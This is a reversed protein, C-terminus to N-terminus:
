MVEFVFTEIDERGFECEARSNYICAYGFTAMFNKLGDRTYYWLHENPKFHKSTLCHEESRFIPMSVFVPRGKLQSMIHSQGPIHELSDWFTVCEIEAMGGNYPDRFLGHADLWAISKPDVDFGACNGHAKLFAGSGIGIDLCRKGPAMSHVLRTRFGTIATGTPSDEMAAYEEFFDVRTQGNADAFGIGMEENWVLGM